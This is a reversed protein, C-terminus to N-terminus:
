DEERGDARRAKIKREVNTKEMRSILGELSFNKPLDQKALVELSQVIIGKQAAIYIISDKYLSNIADLFLTRVQSAMEKDEILPTFSLDDKDGVVLKLFKRIIINKRTELDSNKQM